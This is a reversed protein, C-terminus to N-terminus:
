YTSPLLFTYLSLGGNLDTQRDGINILIEYGNQHIWRRSAIKYEETSRWGNTKFFIMDGDITNGIVSRLNKMTPADLSVKRGTILAIRIGQEKLWHYLNVMEPIGAFNGRHQWKFIDNPSKFLHSVNRSTILTEDIDLVVCYKHRDEPSIASVIDRAQEVVRSYEM